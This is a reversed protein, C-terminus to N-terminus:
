SSQFALKTAETKKYFTPFMQSITTVKTPAIGQLPHHLHNHLMHTFCFTLTMLKM